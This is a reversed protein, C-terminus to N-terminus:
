ICINHELEVHEVLSRRQRAFLVHDGIYNCTLELRSQVLPMIEAYIQRSTLLLPLLCHIPGLRNRELTNGVPKPLHWVKVQPLWAYPYELSQGTDTTLELQDLLFDAAKAGNSRGDSFDSSNEVYIQINAPLIAEYFRLRLEAPLSMLNFVDSM